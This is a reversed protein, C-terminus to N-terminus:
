NDSKKGAKKPECKLEKFGQQMFEVTREPPIAGDKYISRTARRVEQIRKQNETKLAKVNPLNSKLEEIVPIMNIFKGLAM